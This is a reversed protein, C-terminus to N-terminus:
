VKIYCITLFYAFPRSPLYLDVRERLVTLCLRSLLRIALGGDQSVWKGVMKMIEYGYVSFSINPLEASFFTPSVPAWGRIKKQSACGCVDGQM